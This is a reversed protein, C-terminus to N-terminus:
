LEDIFKGLDTGRFTEWDLEQAIRWNDAKAWANSKTKLREYPGIAGFLPGLAAKVAVDDFYNETARRETLLVRYSFSPLKFIM